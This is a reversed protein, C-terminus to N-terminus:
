ITPPTGATVTDTSPTAPDGAIYWDISPDSPTGGIIWDGIYYDVGHGGYGALGIGVGTPMLQVSASVQAYKDGLPTMTYSGFRVVQETMPSNPGIAPRGNPSPLDITIWKTIAHMRVWHSWLGFEVLTMEFQLSISTPNSGAYREQSPFGQEGSRSVGAHVTGSFSASSVAPLYSTPYPLYNPSIIM